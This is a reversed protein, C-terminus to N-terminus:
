YLSLPVQRTHQPQLFGFIRVGRQRHIIKVFTPGSHAYLNVIKAFVVKTSNLAIKDLIM